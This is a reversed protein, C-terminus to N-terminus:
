WDVPTGIGKWTKLLKVRLLSKEGLTNFPQQSEGKRYKQYGEPDTVDEEVIFYATM